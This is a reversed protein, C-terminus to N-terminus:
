VAGEGHTWWCCTWDLLGSVCCLCRSILGALLVDSECNLFSSTSRKPRSCMWWHSFTQISWGSSIHWLSPSLFLSLSHRWCWDNLPPLLTFVQKLARLLRCDERLSPARGTQNWLVSRYAWIHMWLYGSTHRTWTPMFVAMSSFLQDRRECVCCWSPVNLIWKTWFPFFCVISWAPLKHFAGTEEPNNKVFFWFPSFATDSIAEKNTCSDTYSKTFPTNVKHSRQADSDIHTMVTLHLTQSDTVDAALSSSKLLLYSILMKGVDLERM